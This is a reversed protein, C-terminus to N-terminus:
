VVAIGWCDHPDLILSSLCRDGFGVGNFFIGDETLSCGSESFGALRTFSVSVHLKKVFEPGVKQASIEVWAHVVLEAFQCKLIAM